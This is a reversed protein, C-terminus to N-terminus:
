RFRMVTLAMRLGFVVAVLLLLVALAVRYLLDKVGEHLNSM